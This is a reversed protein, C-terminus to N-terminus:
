SNLDATLRGDQIVRGCFCFVIAVASTVVLVVTAV